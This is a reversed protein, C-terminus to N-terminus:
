TYDKVATASKVEVMRWSRGQKGGVPLLVDAYAYARGAEFGAEFL